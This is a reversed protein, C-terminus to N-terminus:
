LSLAKIMAAIDLDEIAIVDYTRVLRVAIQHLFDERCHKDKAHLRAIKESQKNYNNSDKVMHSRRRQEKAIRKELKRYQKVFKIERGNLEYSPKNGSSDIYLFPVSM